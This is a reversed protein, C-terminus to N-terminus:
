PASITLTVSKTASAVVGANSAASLAYTITKGTENLKTIATVLDQPSDTLKVAGASKGGTPEVLTVSLNIGIPMATDLAGTIKSGTMNTTVAYTTSANSVANPTSGAAATSVTLSAPDGSVSLENIPLVSYTVTQTATAGAMAIMSSGLAMVLVVLSFVTFKRM